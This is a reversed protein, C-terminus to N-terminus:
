KGGGFTNFLLAVAGMFGGIVMGLVRGEFSTLRNELATIRREASEMDAETTARFARADGEETM